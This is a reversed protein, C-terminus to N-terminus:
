VFVGDGECPERSQWRLASVERARRRTPTALLGEGRKRSSRRRAVAAVAAAREVVGGLAAV